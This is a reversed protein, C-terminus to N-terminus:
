RRKITAICLNLKTIVAKKQASNVLVTNLKYQKQAAEQTLETLTQEVGQQQQQQWQQNANGQNM